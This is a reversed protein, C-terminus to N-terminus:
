KKFEIRKVSNGNMYQLMTKTLNLLQYIPRTLERKLKTKGYSKPKKRLPIREDELTSALTTGPNHGNLVYDQICIAPSLQYIRRAGSNEFLIMDSQGSLKEPLRALEQAFKRSIVYAGAGLHDSYLRVIRRGKFVGGSRASIVRTGVTELKVADFADPLWSTEKLYTAADDSFFLDDEFIISASDPSAAARRWCEKHSLAVGVEQATWPMGDSKPGALREIEEAELKNGDVAEVREFGIGMDSLISSIRELREPSRDLNIVYISM